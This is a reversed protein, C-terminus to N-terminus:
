GVSPTEVTRTGHTGSRGILIDNPHKMWLFLPLIDVDEDGLREKLTGHDDRDRNQTEQTGQRLYTGAGLSICPLARGM